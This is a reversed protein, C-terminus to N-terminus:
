QYEYGGLKFGQEGGGNVRCGHDLLSKRARNLAFFSAM